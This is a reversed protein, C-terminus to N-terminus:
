PAMRAFPAPVRNLVSAILPVQVRAFPETAAGVALGWPGMGRVVMVVGSTHVALSEADVSALAPPSDILVLTYSRSAEAMLAAMRETALLDPNVPEAARPVCFVGPLSTPRVAADLRLAQDTLLGALGPGLPAGAPILTAVGTVPASSRRQAGLDRIMGPLARLGEAQPVDKGQPARVNGDVLLVREGRRAFIMALNAIVSTTGEGHGPSVVLLRAGRDPVLTRLHRSATRIEDLLEDSGASESSGPLISEGFDPLEGIVPTKGLRIELERGTRVRPDLVSFAVALFFAGGSMLVVVAVAIKKVNSSASRLPPRAESVLTFPLVSADVLRKAEARRQELDKKEAEKVEVARTLTAFTRTKDPMGALTQQVRARAAELSAVKEAATSQNLRIEFSRFMVDKLLNGSVGASVGAQPIVKKDLEAMEQKWAQIQPTDVARAVLSQYKARAEDVMTAPVARIQYLTEARELALRAEELLADNYRKERDDMISERLRQIRINTESMQDTVASAAAQEKAVQEKLEEIIRESNQVQLDATKKDIVAQEYLINTASLEDMTARAEQSLDVVRNETTFARLKEEATRLEDNVLGLRREIDALGSEANQRRLRTQSELFTDRLTNAIAAATKANNWKARFIVLTTKQELEVSTAAGLARADTELKLKRIVEDLNEPLKVMNLLTLLSPTTAGEPSDVPPAQYLMVSEGIYQREAFTLALAVGLAMAIAVTGAVWWRWGWFALAVARLDVPLGAGAPADEPLPGDSDAPREDSM